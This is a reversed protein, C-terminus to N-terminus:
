LPPRPKRFAAELDGWAAKLGAEIRPRNGNKATDLEDFKAQAVALLAKLEDIYLHADFAIRVNTVLTRAALDDIKRAWLGLQTERQKRVAENM